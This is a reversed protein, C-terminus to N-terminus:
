KHSTNADNLHHRNWSVPRTLTIPMRIYRCCWPSTADLYQHLMPMIAIKNSTTLPIPVDLHHHYSTISMLTSGIDLHQCCRPSAAADLHRCCWRSSMTSIGIADHYQHQRLSPLMALYLRYWPLPSSVTTLTNIAIELHQRHRCVYSCFRYHRCHWDLHRSTSAPPMNCCWPVPLMTTVAVYFLLNDVGGLCRGDMRLHRCYWSVTDVVDLNYIDRYCPSLFVSLADFINTLSMGCVDLHKNPLILSIATFYESFSDRPVM